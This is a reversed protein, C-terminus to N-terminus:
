RVNEKNHKTSMEYMELERQLMEYESKKREVFKKTLAIKEKIGKETLLYSYKRKNQASLFSETKVLGKEILANLIYNVKGVSYGIEKALSRQSDIQEVNRLLLLEFEESSM